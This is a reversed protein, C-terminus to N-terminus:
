REIAFIRFERGGAMEQAIQYNPWFRLIKNWARTREGGSLMRVSATFQDARRRVIVQRAAMLNASWAPQRKSGWNSAVVLMVDGDPVYQLSTTRLIGTNRGAVTLQISPLGVLDLVGARGGTVKRLARESWNTLARGRILVRYISPQQLAVKLPNM